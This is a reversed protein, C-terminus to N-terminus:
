LRQIIVYITALQVFLMLTLLGAVLRDTVSLSGNNVKAAAYAVKMKVVNDAM